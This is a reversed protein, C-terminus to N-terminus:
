NPRRYVALLCSTLTQRTDVNLRSLLSLLYENATARSIRLAQATRSVSHGALLHAALQSQRLSIGLRRALHPAIEDIPDPPFVLTAAIVEGEGLVRLRLGIEYAAGYPWAFYTEEQVQEVAVSFRSQGGPIKPMLRNELM